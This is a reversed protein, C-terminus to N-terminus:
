SMPPSEACLNVVSSWSFASAISSWVLYILTSLSTSFYIPNDYFWNETVAWSIIPIVSLYRSLAFLCIM